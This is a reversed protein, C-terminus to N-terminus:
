SGHINNGTDNVRARIRSSLGLLYDERIRTVEEGIHVIGNSEEGWCIAEGHVIRVVCMCVM